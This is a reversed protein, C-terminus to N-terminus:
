YWNGDNLFNMMIFPMFLYKGSCDDLCLVTDISVFPFELLTDDHRLREKLREVLQVGEM